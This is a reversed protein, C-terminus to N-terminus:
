SDFPDFDLSRDFHVALDYFGGALPLCRVVKGHVRREKVMRLNLTIGVETGVPLSEAGVLAMGTQSIDRSTAEFKQVGDDREVGIAVVYKRRPALRKEKDQSLEIVLSVQRGGESWSVEDVFAHMIAIGRGSEMTLDPEDSNLKKLMGEVDFGQGEDTITWICREPTYELRIDVLRGVYQPDKSREELTEKFAKGGDRKLQSSIGYNGHVIANTIAEALAVVIRNAVEPTCVGAALARQKLFMVVSDVWGPHSLIRLHEPPRLRSIIESGTNSVQPMIMSTVDEGVRFRGIIKFGVGEEKKSRYIM